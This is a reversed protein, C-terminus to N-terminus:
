RTIYKNSYSGERSYPRLVQECVIWGECFFNQRNAGPVTPTWPKVRDPNVRVDGINYGLPVLLTVVAEPGLQCSTYTM